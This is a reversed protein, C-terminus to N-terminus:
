KTKNKLSPRKTHSQTVRFECFDAAEEQCISPNFIHPVRPKAVMQIRLMM